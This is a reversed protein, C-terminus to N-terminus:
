EGRYRHLSRIVSHQLWDYDLFLVWSSHNKLILWSANKNMLYISFNLFGIDDLDIYIYTHMSRLVDLIEFFRTM